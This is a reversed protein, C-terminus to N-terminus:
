KNNSSSIMTKTKAKSDSFSYNKQFKTTSVSTLRIGFFTKMLSFASWGRYRYQKVANRSRIKITNYHTLM